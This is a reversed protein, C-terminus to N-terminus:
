RRKRPKPGTAVAGGEKRVDPMAVRAAEKVVSSDVPRSILKGIAERLQDSAGRRPNANGNGFLELWARVAAALIKSHMAHREDLVLPVGNPLPTSQVQDVKGGHSQRSSQHAPLGLLNFDVEGVVLESLRVVMPQRFPTIQVWRDAPYLLSSVEVRGRQAAELADGPLVSVVYTRGAEPAPYRGLLEAVPAAQRFRTWSFDEGRLLVCLPIEAAVLKEVFSAVDLQHEAALDAVAFLMFESM